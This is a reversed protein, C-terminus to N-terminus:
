APDVVIDGGAGAWAGTGGEVNVADYGADILARTVRASRGGAQCIVLVQQDNPVESLRENLQSMPLLHAERAHGRDWEDQERVDILYSGSKARAVAETTTVEPLDSM